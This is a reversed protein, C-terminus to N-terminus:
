RSTAQLTSGDVIVKDGISPPSAQEVSRTSGDEMRVLVQYVTVKKMKKEVANGAVGGGVAGLITALTKGNGDGVQNGVLAGLVGGAIVGGGSATGDRQVATVARVTGCNSCILKAVQGTPHNSTTPEAASTSTPEAASVAEPRKVGRKALPKVAEHAQDAAVAQTKPLSVSDGAVPGQADSAAGMPAPAATALVALRPEEPHTQIRILAAGMALAAVGLVIVAAWLPKNVAPTSKSPNLQDNMPIDM